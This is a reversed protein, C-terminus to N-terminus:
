SILGSKKRSLIEMKIRLRTSFDSISKRTTKWESIERGEEDFTVRPLMLKDLENIDFNESIGELPIMNNQLYVWEGEAYISWGFIFNVGEPSYMTTPLFAKNLSNLKFLQNVWNKYYDIKGWFVLPAFFVESFDDICIEGRASIEGFKSRKEMLRIKFKNSKSEKKLIQLTHEM